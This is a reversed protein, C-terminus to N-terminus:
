KRAHRIVRQRRKLQRPTLVNKRGEFPNPGGKLEVRVPTGHLDLRRRFTNELYSRYSQPVAETQNGHIVIVPPNHGGQHAYRLKIRRGHVAPPAHAEVAEQLIRTLQPTPLKRTAAEYAEDISAFLDGVGSGHLASIFHIRAYDVFSLRLELERRVQERQDPPLKDWKNVAIVVARGRDEVWGLLTADQQGVGERADLVLVAVHAQELAQLTKIASFKEVYDEIRSRRRLGATDILTYRRGCRVFPVFISDRTTGPEDSALVREEGLVRNVLTSKGANPRGLVAILTGADQLDAEIPQEAPLLALAAQMLGTVGIGHAASIAYPQGLGLRYFEALAVSADVGDTKNVTVLTPKGLRRLYEALYEDDPTVGERADTVFLIVASEELARRTQEAMLAALGTAGAVLGGTDVVWYSEGGLRGIGYQRDRTLGPRDAVLAARSRTLVNFLTSKGVNPRGVLAILRQM